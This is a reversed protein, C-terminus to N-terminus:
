MNMKAVKIIESTTKGALGLDYQHYTINLERQPVIIM